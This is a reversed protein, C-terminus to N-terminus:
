DFGTNKFSLVGVIQQRTGWCRRGQINPPFNTSTPCGLFFHPSRVIIIYQGIALLVNEIAPTQLEVNRKVIELKRAQLPVDEIIGRGKPFHHGEQYAM